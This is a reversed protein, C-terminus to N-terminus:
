SALARDVAEPERDIVMLLVRASREPRRRGQEWDRLASLTFGFRSAFDKQTLGTKQRITQVNIQDPIQVVSVRAGVDEGRTFAAAEELGKQISEFPDQNM